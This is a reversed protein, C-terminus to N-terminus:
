VWEQKELQRATLYSEELEFYKAKVRELWEVNVQFLVFIMKYYYLKKIAKM